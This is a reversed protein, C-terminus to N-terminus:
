EDKRRITVQASLNDHNLISDQFEIRFNGYELYSKPYDLGDVMRIRDHLDVLEPLELPIQSDKQSLRKFPTNSDSIIQPFPVITMKLMESAMKSCTVTNMQVIEYISGASLDIPFKQFIPGGDLETVVKFSCIFTKYNKQLIHNQIPSGGRGDPLNGTHFGIVLYEDLIEFRIIRSWHFLFICQISDKFKVLMEEFQEESNVIVIQKEDSILNDMILSNFEKFKSAVLIVKQSDMSNNNMIKM